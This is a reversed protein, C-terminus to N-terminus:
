GGVKADELGKIAQGLFMSSYMQSKELMEKIVNFDPELVEIEEQNYFQLGLEYARFHDLKKDKNAAIVNAVCKGITFPAEDADSLPIIKGEFTMIPKQLNQLKM